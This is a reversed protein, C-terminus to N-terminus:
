ANLGGYLEGDLNARLAALYMAAADPGKITVAARSCDADGAYHFVVLDGDSLSHSCAPCPSAATRPDRLQHQIIRISVTSFEKM